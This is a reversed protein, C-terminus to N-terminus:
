VTREVHHSKQKRKGGKKESMAVGGDSGDESALLNERSGTRRTRRRPTEEDKSDVGDLPREESQTRKKRTRQRPTEEEADVLDRSSDRSKSRKKKTSQRPTEGDDVLDFTPALKRASTTRARSRQQSRPTDGDTNDGTLNAAM